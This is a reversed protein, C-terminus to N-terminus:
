HTSSHHVEVVKRRQMVDLYSRTDAVAMKEVKSHIMPEQIHDMLVTGLELLLEELEMHYRAMCSEVVMDSHSLQVQETPSDQAAVVLHMQTDLLEKSKLRGAPLVKM